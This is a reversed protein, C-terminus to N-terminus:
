WDACWWIVTKDDSGTFLAQQEPSMSWNISYTHGELTKVEEDTKM